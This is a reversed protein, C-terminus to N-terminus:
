KELYKRKMKKYFHYDLYKIKGNILYEKGIKEVKLNKKSEIKTIIGDYQNQIFERIGEKM